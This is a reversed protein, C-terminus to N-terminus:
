TKKVFYNTETEDESKGTLASIKPPRMNAKSYLNCGTISDTFAACNPNDQCLKMCKDKGIMATCILDTTQEGKVPISFKSTDIDQENYPICCGKLQESCKIARQKADYVKMIEQDNMCANYEAMCQKVLPNTCYCQAGINTNDSCCNVADMCYEKLSDKANCGKIDPPNNIDKGDDTVTKMALTTTPVDEFRSIKNSSNSSSDDRKYIHFLLVIIFVILIALMITDLHKNLKTLFKPTTLRPIAM